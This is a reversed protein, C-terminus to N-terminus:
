DDEVGDPGPPPRNLLRLVPAFVSCGAFLLVLTKAGDPSVACCCFGLILRKPDVGEFEAPVLESNPAMVVVDPGDDDRKPWEVVVEADDSPKNEPIPWPVDCFCAVPPRKPPEPGLEVCCGAEPPRNEPNPWPVVCCGAVPPSNLPVFVFKDLEISPAEM